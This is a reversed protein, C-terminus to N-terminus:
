PTRSSDQFTFPLGRFLPDRAIYDRALPRAEVYGRLLEAAREPEGLVLRLYAEDYALDLRLVSDGETSRLARALEARAIDRRGARASITAAVVRRYITHYERGEAIAKEPPDLDDLVKVLGWASDADPRARPDHRLLTLECQVFRWHAPLILRGRQCWEAARTFEGLMLDDFFLQSLIRRAEVLYTDERLARRAAIGAEATSGKFWLLDSLTAWARARKPDHDLAARLDAEVKRVGDPNDSARQTETVLEWRATGRLELAEANEPERKVAEEASQLAQKVAATHDAGSLLEARDLAVWGRDIVPRLWGSDATQALLLLSDARALAAVAARLDQSHPPEAMILADERARQAKFALESAVRNGTGAQAARLRAERGMQRRLLAAIEQALRRELAIPGSMSRELSLSDLYTNFRADILQASVRVRDGAHRITGDVVLHVRLAAIMSDFPVARGRYPEVAYRSVVRFAAVGSLEQILEETLGDAVYRLSSDPGQNEFYLVAIRPQDPWGGPTPSDRHAKPSDVGWRTALALILVLLAVGALTFLRRRRRPVVAKPGSGELAAAFEAASAFRDAPVKALATELVQQMEPPVVPRVVRLDPVPAQMHKAFVAQASLGNFPPEGALMEYLVCALSYIDSRGDLRASGGAQEPSMYTPTGVALGSETLRETAATEIARAVGFDAVMAHDGELLINEPKLDRHVVGHAHAYSLADAVDLVIHLAEEVPLQIERRLRDRLTEGSVCPMVYYLFGEAEGSDHLPLVHPHALSAAIHIERLFREPGVSAALEPYLVKIAVMRDHRLDRALYVTATGGRGLEREIRYRAALAAEVRLKLEPLPPDPPLSGISCRGDAM